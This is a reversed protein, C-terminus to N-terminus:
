RIKQFSVRIWCHVELACFDFLGSWLGIAHGAVQCDFAIGSRHRKLHHLVPFEIVGIHHAVADALTGIGPDVALVKAQREIHHEVTLPDDAVLDLDEDLALEDFLLLLWRSSLPSSLM